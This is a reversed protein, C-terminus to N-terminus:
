AEAQDEGCATMIKDLERHLEAFRFSEALPRLRALEAALATNAAKSELAQFHALADFKGQALLPLLTLVQARLPAWDVCEGGEPCSAAVVPPAQKGGPLWRALCDALHQLDVPKALYDDMGAALCQARVEAFAHATLAIIPV